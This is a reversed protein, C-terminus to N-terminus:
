RPGARHGIRAGHYRLSPQDAGVEDVGRAPQQGHIRRPTGVGGRHAPGEDVLGAGGEPNLVGAGATIQGHGVAEGIRAGNLQGVGGGALVRGQDYTRAGEGVSRAAGDAHQDAAGAARAGDRAAVDGVVRATNDIDIM